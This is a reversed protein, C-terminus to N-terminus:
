QSKKFAEAIAVPDGDTVVSFEKVEGSEPDVSFFPDYDAEDESDHKVRVLLLNNYRFSHVAKLGTKREVLLKAQKEDYM